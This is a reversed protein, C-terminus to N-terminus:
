RYREIQIDSTGDFVQIAIPCGDRNCLLGYAIQPKDMRHDRSHGFNPSNASAARWTPPASTTSGSPARASIASPSRGSSGKRSHWCGTSPPM